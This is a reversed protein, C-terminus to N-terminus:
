RRQRVVRCHDDIAQGHACQGLHDGLMGLTEVDSRQQVVRQAILQAKIIGILLTKM